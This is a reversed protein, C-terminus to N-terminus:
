IAACLYTWIGYVSSSFMVTLLYLVVLLEETNSFYVLKFSQFYKFRRDWRILYTVKFMVQFASICVSLQASVLVVAPNIVNLNM